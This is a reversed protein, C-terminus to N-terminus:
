PQTVDPTVFLSTLDNTNLGGGSGAATTKAGDLYSLAASLDAASVSDLSGLLDDVGQRSGATMAWDSLLSAQGAATSSDVLIETRLAARATELEREDPGNAKLDAVISRVIPLAERPSETTLWFRGYTQRTFVLRAGTTYALGRLDRVESFLREDLVRLALELAAYDSANAAPGPFYSVIHWTPSAPYPLMVVEPVRAPDVAPPAADSTRHTSGSRVVGDTLERVAQEVEARDLDGVLTVLWRTTDRLGAWSQRLTALDIQKLADQSERPLNYSQGHFARSWADTDAASEPDDQESEYGRLFFARLNELNTPDSYPRQLATNLLRWLERWHPLPAQGAIISYDLRHGDASVAAGLHLLQRPWDVLGIISSGGAGMLGLALTETWQQAGSIGGADISLQLAVMPQGPIRKYIVPVGAVDFSEAGVNLCAGSPEACLETPHLELEKPTASREDAGCAVSLCGLLVALSRFCEVKFCRAGLPHAPRSRGAMTKM